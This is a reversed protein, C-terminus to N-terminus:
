KGGIRGTRIKECLRQLIWSGLKICDEKGRDGEMMGHLVGHSAFGAEQKYRWVM